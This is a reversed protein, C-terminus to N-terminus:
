VDESTRGQDLQQGTDSTEHQFQLGEVLFQLRNNSVPMSIQQAFARYSDETLRRKFNKQHSDPGNLMSCLATIYPFVIVLLAFPSIFLSMM